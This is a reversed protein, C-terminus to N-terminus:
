DTFEELVVGLHQVIDQVNNVTKELNLDNIMLKNQNDHLFKISTKIEKIDNVITAIILDM